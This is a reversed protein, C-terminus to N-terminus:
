AFEGKWRFVTQLISHVGVGIGLFLFPMLPENYRDLVFYVSYLITFYLLSSLVLLIENRHRSEVVLSILFGILGAVVVASHIKDLQSKPIRFIEIWYFPEKWLLNPKLYAYSRIFSEPDQQWWNKIREKAVEERVKNQTYADTSPYPLRKILEDFTQNPNPFGEGQFTGRLLPDGSGGTLPIFEHYHVYNRVWWPGLIALMIVVAVTAQKLMMKLPYKKLMLYMFLILPYLVVTPRFMLSAIYFFMFASFTSMKSNQSLRISFYVLFIFSTAFPTETLLLNDTLIHPVSLAFLGAVLLGTRIGAMTKAILYMGYIGAVGILIMVLKAAYLGTAEWGFVLFILALLLPQGPMIHVTPETPRHYILMGSKLLQIASNVYGADDSNLTLNLGYRGLALLRIGLAALLVWWILYEKRFM